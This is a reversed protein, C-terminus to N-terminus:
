ITAETSYENIRLFGPRGKVLACQPDYSRGLPRTMQVVGRRPAAKSADDGQVYPSFERTGLTFGCSGYARVMAETIKRRHQRQGISQGPGAQPVFPIMTSTFLFGLVLTPSLFGTDSALQVLNGNPDIAREGQDLEGDMVTINSGAVYFLLGDGAPPSPFSAPLNNPTVVDDLYLTSDEQELYYSGGLAVSYFVSPGSCFIWSPKNTSRWPHWGVFKRDASFKGHAISGDANLVYILREPIQGDGQAVIMAVPGTFLDTYIESAGDSTYPNTYSGTRIVASARKMGSNIYIISDQTKLPVVSSVGDNSFQRFEVSGPQLPNSSSIPVSYIGKDTFVFMDGWSVVHRVRPRDNLFEFIASDPAAGAEPQLTAAGEDVWFTDYQGIASMVIADPRQPFDNFILRSDSAACAMPWGLTASMFQEQWQRTTGSNLATAQASVKSKGLPSVLIDATSYTHGNVVQDLLVGTVTSGSVGFLELKYGGALEQVLQGVQFPTVVSVTLTLSQPLLTAITATAHTSDTVATILVQCGLISLISGVMAPTFYPASAVLPTSGSVASWSLTVGPNGSRYFPQLSQGAITRFAFPTFTWAGTTPAVVCLQPQMGPFCLVIQNDIVTMYIQGVTANTWLYAASQNSAVVLSTALSYITVTGASFHISYESSGVRAYESRPAGTQALIRRGPRGIASGAPEVRWNELKRCATKYEPREDARLAAADPQGGSFDRMTTLNKNM